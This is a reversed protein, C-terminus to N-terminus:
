PRSGPTPVLPANAVPKDPRPPAPPKTGPVLLNELESRPGDASDASTELEIWHSEQDKQRILQVRNAAIRKVLFGEVADGEEVVMAEEKEKWRLLASQRKPTVLTGVLAPLNKMGAVVGEGTKPLIGRSPHFLNRKRIRDLAGEPRLDLAPPDQARATAVALVLLFAFRGKM